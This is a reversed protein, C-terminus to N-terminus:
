AVVKNLYRKGDDMASVGMAYSFRPNPSGSIADSILIAAGNAMTIMGELNAKAAKKEKRPKTRIAPLNAHFAEHATKLEQKLEETSKVWLVIKDNRKTFRSLYEGLRAPKISILQTLITKEKVLAAEKKLNKGEEVMAAKGSETDAHNKKLFEDIAKSVEPRDLYTFVEQLKEDSFQKALEPTPVARLTKEYYKTLLRIKKMFDKHEKSELIM